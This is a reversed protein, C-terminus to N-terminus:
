FGHWFGILFGGFFFGGFFFGGAAFGRFRVARGGGGGPPRAIFGFLGAQCLSRTMTLICAPIPEPRAIQPSFAPPVHFEVGVPNRAAANVHPTAAHRRPPCCSKAILVRGSCRHRSGCSHWESSGGRARRGRQRNGGGGREGRRRKVPRCKTQAGASWGVGVESGLSGGRRRHRGEVPGGGSAREVGAGSKVIVGSLLGGPAGGTKTLQGRCPVFALWPAGARRAGGFSPTAHQRAAPPRSRAFGAVPLMPACGRM